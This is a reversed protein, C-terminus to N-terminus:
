AAVAAIKLGAPGVAHLATGVLGVRIKLGTHQIVDLQAMVPDCLLQAADGAEGIGEAAGVRIGLGKHVFQKRHGQHGRGLAGIQGLPEVIQGPEGNGHLGIQFFEQVSWVNVGAQTEVCAPAKNEASTM